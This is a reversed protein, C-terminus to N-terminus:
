LPLNKELWGKFAEVSEVTAAQYFAQELIDRKMKELLSAFAAYDYSKKDLQHRIHLLELTDQQKAQIFGVQQGEQQGELIGEDWGRRHMEQLLPSKEFFDNDRAYREVMTMLEKDEILAGMLALLEGAKAENEQSIADLAQQIEAEPNSFDTQGILTLLAPQKMDLLAQAPLKWLHIVDYHFRGAKYKGLQYDGTDDVGAGKELYIVFSRLPLDELQRYKQSVMVFYDLMRIPMPMHSHKGQLEIHVLELSDDPLTLELLTDAFRVRSQLESNLPKAAKVELGLFDRCFITANDEIIIKIPHDRKMIVNYLM